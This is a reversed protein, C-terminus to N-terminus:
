FPARVLSTWLCLTCHIFWPRGSEWGWIIWLQKEQWLLPSVVDLLFKDTHSIPFGKSGWLEKGLSGCSIISLPVHPWLFGGLSELLGSLALQLVIPFWGTTCSFITKSTQSIMIYPVHMNHFEKKQGIWCFFEPLCNHKLFVLIYCWDDMVVGYSKMGPVPTM